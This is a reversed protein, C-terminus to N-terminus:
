YTAYLMHAIVCAVAWIIVASIKNLLLLLKGQQDFRHTYHGVAALGLFWVVSVTICASTFVLREVGVFKLASTGIVGVTDLLAHPNLLSVSLAFMVQKRASMSSQGAYAQKPRAFWTVFGMYVLFILGLTLLLIKFWPIALVVVSVGLVAALILTIDCVIATIVSPLAGSFREHNAGQNFIFINQVGLPLILGFALIVGYFFAYWM